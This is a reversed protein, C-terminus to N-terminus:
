MHKFFTPLGNGRAILSDALESIVQMNAAKNLHGNDESVRWDKVSLPLKIFPLGEMIKDTNENITKYSIKYYKGNRELVNEGNFSYSGPKEERDIGYYNAGNEKCTKQIEKNLLNTLMIGYAQRQSVPTFSNSVHTKENEFNETAPYDWYTITGDYNEMPKYPDPLYLKEYKEDMGKVPNMFVRQILHILKFPSNKFFLSDMPINPGVLRNNEIRFTPKPQGDKPIHTPFLNNWIDNSPTIWQVVLDARYNQFYKKLALLEQDNGYGGAGLSFVKAPVGKEKLKNQLIDEPMEGFKSSESEVQSDGLLVVVFDQDTYDIKKGRFGEQNIQDKDTGQYRWGVNINQQYKPKDLLQLILEIFVVPIFTIILTFLIHKFKMGCINQNQPTM